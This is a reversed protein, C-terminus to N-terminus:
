FWECAETKKYRLQMEIGMLGSSEKKLKKIEKDLSLSLLPSILFRNKLSERQSNSM